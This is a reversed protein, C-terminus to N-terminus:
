REQGEEVLVVPYRRGGSFTESTVGTGASKANAKKDQYNNIRGRIGSANGQCELRVVLSHNTVIGPVHFKRVQWAGLTYVEEGPEVLSPAGNGDFIAVKGSFGWSHNTVWGDQTRYEIAKTKCLWRYPTANSLSFFTAPEPRSASFRGFMQNTLYSLVINPAQRLNTSKRNNLVIVLLLLAVCVGLIALGVYPRKM